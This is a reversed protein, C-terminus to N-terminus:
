FKGGLTWGQLRYLGLVWFLTWRALPHPPGPLSSTVSTPRSLPESLPQFHSIRFKTHENVFFLKFWSCTPPQRPRLFLLFHEHWLLMPVLCFCLALNVQSNPALNLNPNLIPKSRSISNKEARPLKKNIYKYTNQKNLDAGATYMFSGELELSDGQGLRGLAWIVFTHWQSPDLNM